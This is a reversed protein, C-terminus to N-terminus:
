GEEKGDGRPKRLAPEPRMDLVSVDVTPREGLLDGLAQRVARRVREGALEARPPGELARRASRAALAVVEDYSPVGRAYVTLVLDGVGRVVTLTVVGCRGLKRRERLTEEDLVLGANTAVKGAPVAGDRGLGTARDLAAVEGDVLTLVQDVGLDRALMAHRALHMRTGHVPIFARPRLLEILREQEGRYAHGSVHIDPDTRSTRVRVGFAMLDDVMRHVARENGPIIRSSLAVVDGPELRLSPHIGSAIRRLSGRPEAQTGSAIYAVNEPALDSATEPSVLLDSPWDVLRLARAVEVHKRVSRGLLCLHRGHRQCADAVARVRHLNSAFLGIVVRQEAEGVIRDLAFAAERESGTHGDRLVNTSDSLLLAVGEDGLASLRSEDTLEGDSPQPDLKFDGSHVIRGARTQISLAAAQPISHTVRIMELEYSGLSFPTRPDVVHFVVCPEATSAADDDHDRYAVGEDQFRHRTLAVAHPAGWVHLAAIQARSRFVSRALAAMAGIHDEHGHTLVVGLLRSTPDELRHLLHDFRPHLYDVGYDDNPFTAGCDVLLLELAEGARQELMLCNAGIEGLGGLPVLRVAERASASRPVTRPSIKRDPM